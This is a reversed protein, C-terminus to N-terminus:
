RSATGQGLPYSKWVLHSPGRFDRRTLLTLTFVLAIILVCWRLGTRFAPNSM